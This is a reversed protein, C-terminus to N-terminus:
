ASRIANLFEEIQRRLEQAQQDLIRAANQAQAVVRGSSELSSTTENVARGISETGEAAAHVGSAITRASTSQQAVARATRGALADLESRARTVTAPPATLGASKDLM